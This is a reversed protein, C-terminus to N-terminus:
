LIVGISEEFSITEKLCFDGQHIFHNRFMKQTKVNWTNDLPFTCYFNVNSLLVNQQLDRKGREGERETERERKM